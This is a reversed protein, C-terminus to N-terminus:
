NSTQMAQIMLQINELTDIMERERPGAYPKIVQLIDQPSSKRSATQNIGMASVEEEQFLTMTRRVEMVKVLTSIARQQPIQLYPIAAKVMQLQPDSVMYDFDTLHIDQNSENM